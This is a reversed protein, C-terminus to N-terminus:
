LLYGIKWDKVQDYWCLVHCLCVLLCVMLAGTFLHLFLLCFATGAMCITMILLPLRDCNFDCYPPPIVSVVRASLDCLGGFVGRLAFLM